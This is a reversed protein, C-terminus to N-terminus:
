AAIKKYIGLHKEIAAIGQLAHDIEKRFGSAYASPPLCSPLRQGDLRKQTAGRAPSIHASDLTPPSRRLRGETPRESSLPQGAAFGSMITPVASLSFGIQM